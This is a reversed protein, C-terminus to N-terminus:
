CTLVIKGERWVRIDIVSLLPIATEGEGKIPYNMTHRQLTIKRQNNHFYVALGTALFIGFYSSKSKTGAFLEALAVRAYM